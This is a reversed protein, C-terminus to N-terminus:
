LGLHARIAGGYRDWADLARSSLALTEPLSALVKRLVTMRRKVPPHTASEAVLDLSELVEAKIEDPLENAQAIVKSFAEIAERFADASPSGTVGSLHSHINGLVEGTNLTGVTGINFIPGQTFPQRSTPGTGRHHPLEGGESPAREYLGAEIRERIGELHSVRDAVSQRLRRLVVAPADYVSGGGFGGSWGYDHAVEETDFLGGLLESNFSSWRRIDNEVDDITKGGMFLTPNRMPDFSDALEHGRKIQLGIVAIAEEPSKRLRPRRYPEAPQARRATM